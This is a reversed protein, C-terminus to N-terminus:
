KQHPYPHLQIRLNFAKTHCAGLGHLATHGVVIFLLERIWLPKSLRLQWFRVKTEHEHSADFSYDPQHNPVNKIKGYIPFLWGLQSINKLPNFGGVLLSWSQSRQYQDSSVRSMGPGQDMSPFSGISKPGNKQPAKRLCIPFGMTMLSKFVCIM